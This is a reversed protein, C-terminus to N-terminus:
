FMEYAIENMNQADENDMELSYKFPIGGFNELNTKVDGSVEDVYRQLDRADIELEKIERKTQRSKLNIFKLANAFAYWNSIETNTMEKASKIPYLESHYSSRTKNM